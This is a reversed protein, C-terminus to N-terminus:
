PMVKHDQARDREANLCAGLLAIRPNIHNVEFGNVMASYDAKSDDEHGYVLSFGTDHQDCWNIVWELVNDTNDPAFVDRSGDLRPNFLVDGHWLPFPWGIVERAFDFYIMKHEKLKEIRELYEQTAHTEIM